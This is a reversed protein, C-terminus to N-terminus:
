RQRDDRLARRADVLAGCAVKVADAIHGRWRVLGVAIPNQLSTV